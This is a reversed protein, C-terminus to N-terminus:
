IGFQQKLQDDFDKRVSLLPQLVRFLENNVGIEVDTFNHMPGAEEVFDTEVYAFDANHADETQFLQQVAMTYKEFNMAHKWCGPCEFYTAFVWVKGEKLVEITRILLPHKSTRGNFESYNIFLTTGIPLTTLDEGDIMELAVIFSGKKDSPIRHPGMVLIDAGIQHEVTNMDKKREKPHQTIGTLKLKVM